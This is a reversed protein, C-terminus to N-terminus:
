LKRFKLGSNLLVLVIRIGYPYNFLKTMQNIQKFMHKVQTLGILISISPMIFYM